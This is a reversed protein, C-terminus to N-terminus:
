RGQPSDVQDREISQILGLERLQYLRTLAEANLEVIYNRPSAQPEVQLVGPGRLMETVRARNPQADGAPVTGTPAGSSRDPGVTVSLRVAGQRAARALLDEDMSGMNAGERENQLLRSVAQGVDLRPRALNNRIDTIQRGTEAIVTAVDDVSSRPVASRLVAWAGAVHPAAMSTGGKVGFGGGNLSSEIEHGPALFRLMRSSNSTPRVADQKTTNGVAFATSICAPSSIGDSAGGNGSAIVTAVGAARLQDIIAKTDINQQSTSDCAAKHLGSGLSMNVSAIRFQTTLTQVHRLAAIQDSRYSLACPSQTRADACPTAGGQRDDFRSFVQIAIIQADPAVGPFRADSGAAIGAVHTGHGCGNINLPCDAAVNANPRDPSPCFSSANDAVSASSFCAQAVVRGGFTSHGVDVGSDLIAIAQGAGRFGSTWAQPGGILPVSEDLLPADITDREVSLGRRLLEQLGNSDVELVVLPLGELRRM